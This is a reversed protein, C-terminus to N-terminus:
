KMYIYKLNYDILNEKKMLALERSLSPRTVNLYNALSEKTTIPIKKSNLILSEQNLFMLIKERLSSQLLVKNHYNLKLAKDSLEQLYYSRFDSNNILLHNFSKKDLFVIEADTKTVLYGPYKNNTSNILFDGFIQKARLEALVRKEGNNTYHLLVLEGKIIYGIRECLDNEHYVITDKPYVCKLSLYKKVDKQNFLEMNYGKLLM